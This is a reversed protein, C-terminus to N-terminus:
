NIPRGNLAISCDTFARVRLRAWPPVAALEFARRFVARRTVGNEVTFMQPPVPYGIWQGAGDPPLFRSRPSRWAFWGLCVLALVPVGVLIALAWRKQAVVPLM